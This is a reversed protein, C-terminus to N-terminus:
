DKQLLKVNVKHFQVACMRPRERLLLPFFKSKERFALAYPQFNAFNEVLDAGLNTKEAGPFDPLVKALNFGPYKKM